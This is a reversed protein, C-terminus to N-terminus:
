VERRGPRSGARPRVPPRQAHRSPESAPARPHGRSANLELAEDRDGLLTLDRARRAPEIERLGREGIRDSLELGLEAYLQEFTARATDLQSVRALREEGLRARRQGRLGVGDVAALRKSARRRPRDRDAEDPRRGHAIRRLEEAREGGRVGLRHDRKSVERERAAGGGVPQCPDVDCEADRRGGFRADVRDRDTDLRAGHDGAGVVRERIAAADAGLVERALGEDRRGV